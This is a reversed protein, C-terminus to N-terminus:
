LVMEQVFGGLHRYIYIDWTVEPLMGKVLSGYSDM